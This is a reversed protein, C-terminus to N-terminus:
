PGARGADGAAASPVSADNQPEASAPPASTPAEDSAGGADGKKNRQDLSYWHLFRLIVRADDESIGSGPQRRMRAVYLAWYEDDVIGSNLPRALSHCKSCRVSFVAYDERVSPPMPLPDLLESRTYGGPCAASALGISAALAFLVFPHRQIM